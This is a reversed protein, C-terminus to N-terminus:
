QGFLELIGVLQLAEFAAAAGYSVATIALAANIVASPIIGPESRYASSRQQRELAIHCRSRVRRDLTAPPTAPPLGALLRLIPDRTDNTKM